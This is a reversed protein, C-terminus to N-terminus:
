PEVPHRADRLEGIGSLPGEISEVTAIRELFRWRGDAEKTLRDEYRGFLRLQPGGDLDVLVLLYSSSVATTGTIDISPQLAFHKHWYGPARTHTAIFAALADHGVIERTLEGDRDRVRFAGDAAFCSVWAVEDGYDIAHAYSSLVGAIMLRDEAETCRAELVELRRRARAGFQV